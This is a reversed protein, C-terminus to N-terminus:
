KRARSKRKKAPKKAAKPALAKVPAIETATDRRLARLVECGAALDEFVMVRGAKSRARPNFITLVSAGSQAQRFSNVVSHKDHGKYGSARVMRVFNGPGAEFAQSAVTHTHGAVYLEAEAGGFMAAKALGHTKNYISNGKFDHAAHVKWSHKGARFEVKAEWDALYMGESAILGLIADGEQWDDHNGLLSLRWDVGCDRLFWAALRRADKKTTSQDSYLRMLRGVWNNTFDGICAGYVGQTTSALTIDDILLPWNCDEDDLHPDGFWAVGFPRGDLEPLHIPLWECAKRAKSRRDYRKCNREIIENIPEDGTPFIKEM